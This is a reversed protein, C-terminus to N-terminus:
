VVSIHAASPAARANSLFEACVGYSLLPETHTHASRTSHSDFHSHPMICKLDIYRYLVRTKCSM